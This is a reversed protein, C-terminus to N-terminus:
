RSFPSCWGHFNKDKVIIGWGGTSEGGLAIQEVLAQLNKTRSECVGCPFDDKKYKLIEQGNLYVPNTNGRRASRGKERLAFAIDTALNADRSNLSINYAILFERVGIVTAGSAANFEAPGFDPKWQPQKMKDPLAEYEGKRIVALNERERSRASKEYLYVPIQLENGIREALEESIQVCEEVSVNSVPILPCVDTAGM